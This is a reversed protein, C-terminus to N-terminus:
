PKCGEPATLDIPVGGSATLVAAVMRDILVCDSGELPQGGLGDGRRLLAYFLTHLGVRTRREPVAWVVKTGTQWRAYLEGVIEPPDQLDAAMFIIAEGQALKLGCALAAHSGYNRALRVGRICRSEGAWRSALAYTEDGSGDDVIIWEWEVGMAALTVELRQRLAPLNQVENYAPTVISLM